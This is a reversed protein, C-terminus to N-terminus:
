RHSLPPAPLSDLFVPVSKLSIRMKDKVSRALKEIEAVKHLQEPTLASPNTSGIEANLETVLKLLKDTDDVMSKHQAISLQRLRREALLPDRQDGVMNEDMEVTQAPMTRMAPQGSGSANQGGCRLALLLTLGLVPISRLALARMFGARAGRMAYEVVATMM